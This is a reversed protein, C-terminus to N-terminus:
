PSPAAGAQVPEVLGRELLSECLGCVDREVDAVPMDTEAAITQAVIAITKGAELGSLMEGATRNLGFYKGTELNLIVTQAEFDRHVVHESVRVRMEPTVSKSPGNM